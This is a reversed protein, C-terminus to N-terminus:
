EVAAAGKKLLAPWNIIVNLPQPGQSFPVNMLFRKGDASVNYDGAAPTVFLERPNSAEVSDRGLKLKVAMLKGEPARYFLVDGTRDPAPNWKAFSGGGISVRFKRRPEPFAQIYIEYRGSEDSEYAVWHPSSEPSFQANVENFQTRLYPKPNAAGSGSMELFWIDRKTDQAGEFYVVYRGDRSWDTAHKLYPSKVAMQESGIENLDKYFFLNPIRTFLISRSDPSWLPNINSGGGSTLRNSIGRETELLWVDFGSISQRRSVAIRRGNPSLSFDRLSDDAEGATALSKGTSDFWTLQSRVASAYLLTNGSVAVELRNPNAVGVSDALPHADGFFRRSRSDFEQAVLTGGRSWLLYEKGDGPSAYAANSSSTLLQVREDPRALSAAYVGSNEPTDGLVYLLLQGGPLVQPWFHALEHRSADL